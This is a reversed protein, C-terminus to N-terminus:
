RTASSGTSAILLEGLPSADADLLEASSCIKASPM